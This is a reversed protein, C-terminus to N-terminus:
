LAITNILDLARAQTPNPTALITFPATDSRTGHALCRNRTLTALESLLTAFSHVPLGDDLQRRKIKALARASRKAPAVPDREAKAEQDEDAFMMERWAERMHWEVYYALVCLFSHNDCQM